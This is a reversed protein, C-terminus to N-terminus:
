EIDETKRFWFFINFGLNLVSPLNYSRVPKTDKRLSEEVFNLSIQLARRGQSRISNFIYQLTM